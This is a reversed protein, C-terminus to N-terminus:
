EGRERRAQEISAWVRVAAETLADSPEDPWTALIEEIREETTM